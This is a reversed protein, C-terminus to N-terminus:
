KKRVSEDLVALRRGISGFCVCSCFLVSGVWTVVALEEYSIMGFFLAQAMPAGNNLGAKVQPNRTTTSPLHTANVSAPLFPSPLVDPNSLFILSTLISTVTLSVSLGPKSRDLIYWLAPNVLALTLTLQLTSQWPLRRIAFAIGIFAAVSRVVDNVQESIPPDHEEAEKGEPQIESESSQANWLLDVYPLLSGLAVGFLGWTALYARGKQDVGEVHIAALQKTEHIHSVIVGYMVGFVYLATFKGAIVLYKWTGQRAQKISHSRKRADPPYMASGNRARNYLSVGGDPSGIGTARAQSDPFIHKPTEAGTGWPTEISSQDGSEDYIGSLTSSTLNLLSPNRPPLGREQEESDDNRSSYYTRLLRANLQAVFDSARRNETASPPTSQTFDHTPSDASDSREFTRRPIPCHIHLPPQAAHVNSPDGGM